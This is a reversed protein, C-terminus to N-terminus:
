AFRTESCSVKIPSLLRQHVCFPPVRNSGKVKEMGKLWKARAELQGLDKFLSSYGCLNKKASTRGQQLPLEKEGSVWRHHMDANSKSSSHGTKSDEM